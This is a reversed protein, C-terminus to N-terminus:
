NQSVDANVYKQLAEILDPVHEKPIYVLDTDVIPPEMSLYTDTVIIFVCNNNKTRHSLKLSFKRQNNKNPVLNVDDTTWEKVVTQIEPDGEYLDEGQDNM